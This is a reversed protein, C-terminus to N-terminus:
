RGVGHEVGLGHHREGVKGRSVGVLELPYGVESRATDLLVTGVEQLENGLVEAAEDRSALDTEGVEDGGFGVVADLSVKTLM